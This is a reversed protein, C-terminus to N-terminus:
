AKKLREAAARMELRVLGINVDEDAIAVLIGNEADSIFVKGGTAELMAQVLRGRDTKGLCDNTRAALTAAMAAIRESDVGADVDAVVVMGDRTIFMTGRVGSVRNLDTM